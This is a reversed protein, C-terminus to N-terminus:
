LFLNKQLRLNKQNTFYSQKMHMLYNFDLIYNPAVSSHIQEKYLSVIGYHILYM